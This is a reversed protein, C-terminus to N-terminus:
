NKKAIFTCGDQRQLVSQLVPQVMSLLVVQLRIIYHRGLLHKEFVVIHHEMLIIMCIGYSMGCFELLMEKMLLIILTCETQLYIGRCNNFLYSPTSKIQDIFMDLQNNTLEGDSELYIPPIGEEIITQSEVVEWRGNDFSKKEFEEINFDSCGSLLISLCLLYSRLICRKM